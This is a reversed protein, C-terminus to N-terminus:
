EIVIKRIRNNKRDVVYVVGNKDVAVGTPANFAAAKGLADAYGSAGSGAITSVKWTNAEIYRISQDANSSSGDKTGNGAIYLNNAADIAIGWPSSFKSSAGEGDVYGYVGTQGAIITKEWTEAKYKAIVSEDHMVIMLNHQNDVAIDSPWELGEIITTHHTGDPFIRNIKGADHATYYITGNLKDVGICFPAGIGWGVNTTTGDPAIKRIDWNWPDVSYVNGQADVAVDTPTQFKAAGGKGEAYGADKPNGALTTVMGDPAIKRICHNGADAVFVNLNDDVALGCRYNSFNFSADTGKENLFGAKGSGALTTVTSTYLYTFNVASKVSNDGIKIVLPGSEVHKPVVAMLQHGNSGVIFLKRGHLTISIQTTDTSFNSGNILIETGASGRTPVFSEITIPISPNYSVDDERKCSQLATTACFLGSLLFVFIIDKM